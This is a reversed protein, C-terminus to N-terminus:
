EYNKFKEPEDKMQNLMLDVLEVPFRIDKLEGNEEYTLFYLDEGKKIQINEVHYEDELIDAFLTVTEMAANDTPREDFVVKITLWNFLTDRLTKM